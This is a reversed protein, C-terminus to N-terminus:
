SPPTFLPFINYKALSNAARFRNRNRLKRETSIQSGSFLASYFNNIKNDSANRWNRM